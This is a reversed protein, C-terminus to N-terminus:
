PVFEVNSMKIRDGDRALDVSLRWPRPDEKAGAENTVTSVASVIVTATEDTMEEVAAANVTVETVVKAEKAVKVFDQAANEFDERFRGTSNDIIRQVDQEANAHNLSMLTVVGQRAAATYEAAMRRQQEAERHQWLMFGTAALLAVTLAVVVGAAVPQWRLAPLRPLGRRAPRGVAEIPPAETGAAATDAPVTDALVTDAPDDAGAGAALRRLRAARARARAAAARAEAEAAEAEAAEALALAEDPDLARDPNVRGAPDGDRDEALPSGPEPSAM